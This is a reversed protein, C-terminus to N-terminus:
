GGIFYLPPVEKGSCYSVQPLTELNLWDVDKFNATKLRKEAEKLLAAPGIFSSIDQNLAKLASLIAATAVASKEKKLRKKLPAIAAEYGIDGLWKAANSRADQRTDDILAVLQSEYGTNKQLVKRASKRIDKTGSMAMDLVYPGYKAPLAPLMELMMLGAIKDENFEKDVVLGLKHDILWFNETILPWIAKIGHDDFGDEPLFDFVNNSRNFPRRAFLFTLLEGKRLHVEGRNIKLQELLLEFFRFDVKEERELLSLALEVVDSRYSWDRGKSADALNLEIAERLPYTSRIEAILSRSKSKRMRRRFEDPANQRDDVQGQLAMEAHIAFVKPDLTSAYKLYHRRDEKLDQQYEDELVRGLEFLRARVEETVPPLASAELEQLPPIAIFSGDIGVYGASTGEKEKEETQQLGIARIYGEILTRIRATRETELHEKLIDCANDTGLLMLVEVMSKRSEAKGVALIDTATGECMKTGATALAKVARERIFKSGDGLAGIVMQFVLPESCLAQEEVFKLVRLRGEQPLRNMLAVFAQPHARVLTSVEIHTTLLQGEGSRYDKDHYFVVDLVDEVTGSLKEVIGMLWNSDLLAEPPVRNKWKEHKCGRLLELLFVRVDIPTAPTSPMYKLPLQNTGLTAQLTQVYRVILAPATEPNLFLQRRVVVGLTTDDYTSRGCGLCDRGLQKLTSLVMADGKGIIYDYAKRALGPQFEDLRQLDLPLTEASQLEKNSLNKAQEIVNQFTKRFISM